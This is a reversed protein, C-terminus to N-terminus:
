TRMRQAQFCKRVFCSKNYYCRVEIFTDTHGINMVAKITEMEAGLEKHTKM